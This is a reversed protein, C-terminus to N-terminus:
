PIFKYSTIYLLINLIYIYKTTPGTHFTFPSSGFRPIQLHTHRHKEVHIKM